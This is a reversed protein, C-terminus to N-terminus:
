TYKRIFLYILLCGKYEVFNNALIEKIQKISLSDIDTETNIDSLSARRKPAQSTPEAQQQQPTELNQNLNSQSRSRPINNTETATPAETQQNNNFINNSFTQNLVNPFQEGFFNFVSGLNGTTTSSSTSTNTNSNTRRPPPNSAPRPPPAPCPVSNNPNLVSNLNFNVFDQVNSFFNNFTNNFNQQQQQQQGNQQPQQPPTQQVRPRSFKEKNRIFLDALDRKDKCLNTPINAKSLICKLHKLKLKMLDDANLNPTCISQCIVCIRESSSSSRSTPTTQEDRHTTSSRNVCFQCFAQNCMSCIKRRKFISFNSSCNECSDSNSSSDTSTSM